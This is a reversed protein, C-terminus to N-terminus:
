QARGALRRYLVAYEQVRDQWSGITARTAMAGEQLKHLLAPDAHLLSLKDALAEPSGAPVVFGNEGDRVLDASGNNATTIVPIGCALAEVVVFAYGDEITPLVLVSSTAMHARMETNPVRLLHTFQDRYPTIFPEIQHNVEGILTLEANPLNMQKWAKLLHVQGKRLAIQGVCLVRFKERSVRREDETVPYFRSLNQGTTILLVRDAPFGNRIFSDRTFVSEAHIYDCAAVEDVIYQQLNTLKRTQAIGLRDGEAALLDTFLRPHSNVALGIRASGELGARGLIKRGAGWLLLHTVPAPRWNALVQQEWLAHYLPFMQDTFRWGITRLHARVLYEKLWLNSGRDDPLGLSAPTTARNHSYYFHNLVGMAELHPVVPRMHAVGPVLLNTLRPNNV